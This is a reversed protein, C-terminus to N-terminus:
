YRKPFVAFMAADNLYFPLYVHVILVLDVDGYRISNDTVYGITYITIHSTVIKCGYKSTRILNPVIRVINHEQKIENSCTYNDRSRSHSFM